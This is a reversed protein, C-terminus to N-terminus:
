IIHAKSNYRDIFIMDQFQISGWRNVLKSLHPMMQGKVVLFNHISIVLISKEHALQKSSDPSM